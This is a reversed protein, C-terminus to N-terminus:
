KVASQPSHHAARKKCGVNQRARREQFPPKQAARWESGIELDGYGRLKVFDGLCHNKKRGFGKNKKEEKSLHKQFFTDKLTYL